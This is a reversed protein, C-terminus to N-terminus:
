LPSLFHLHQNRLSNTGGKNKNKGKEKESLISFPRNIMRTGDPLVM